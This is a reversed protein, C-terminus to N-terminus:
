GKRIYMGKKSDNTWKSWQNKPKLYTKFWGNTNFAVCDPMSSALAMMEPISKGAGHRGSDHGNSDMYPIFEWEIIDAADQFRTLEVKWSISDARANQKRIGSLSKEGSTFDFTISKTGFSEDSDVFTSDYEKLSAQIEFSKCQHPIYLSDSFLTLQDIVSDQRRAGKLKWPNEDSTSVLTQWSGGDVRYNFSGYIEMVLDNESSEHSRLDLELFIRQNTM